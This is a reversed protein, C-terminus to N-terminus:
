GNPFLFKDLYDKLQNETSDLFTQIATADSEPMNDEHISRILKSRLFEFMNDTMNRLLAVQHKSFPNM